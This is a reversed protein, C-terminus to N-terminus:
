LRWLFGCTPARVKGSVTRTARGVGVTAHAVAMDRLISMSSVLLRSSPVQVHPAGPARGGWPTPPAANAGRSRALGLTDDLRRQEGLAGLHAVDQAGVGVEVEFADGHGGHERRAGNDARAAGIADLDDTGSSVARRAPHRHDEGGATPPAGIVVGLAPPSATGGSAASGSPATAIAGIAGTTGTTGTTGTAAARGARSAVAFAVAAGSPLTAGTLLTALARGPAFTGPAGFSGGARSGLAARAPGTVVAGAASTTSPGFPGIPGPAQL